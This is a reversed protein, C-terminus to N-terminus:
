KRLKTLMPVLKIKDYISSGSAEDAGDLAM